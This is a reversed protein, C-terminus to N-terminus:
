CHGFVSFIIAIVGRGVRGDSEREQERERKGIGRTRERESEIDRTIETVM